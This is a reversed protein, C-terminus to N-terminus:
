HVEPAVPIEDNYFDNGAAPLRGAPASRPSVYGCKGKQRGIQALRCHFSMVSLGFRPKGDQGTWESTSLKGEVYVRAGRVFKDAIDVAQPDFALVSVWQAGDGDGIRVSFRLYPRGSKSIKQEAVQGLAGFFAAEISM